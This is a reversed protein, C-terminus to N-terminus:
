GFPAHQGCVVLDPRGGGEGDEEEHGELESHEHEADDREEPENNKAELHGHYTVLLNFCLPRRLCMRQELVVRVLHKGGSCNGSQASCIHVTDEVCRVVVSYKM